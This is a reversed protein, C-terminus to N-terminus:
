DKEYIHYIQGDIKYIDYKEYFENLSVNEGITVQYITRQISHPSNYINIIQVITLIVSLLASIFYSGTFKTCCIIIMAITFLVSITMLLALLVGIWTNSYSNLIQIGELM